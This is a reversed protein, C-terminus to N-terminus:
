SYGCWRPRFREIPRKRIYEKVKQLNNLWKEDNQIFYEKYEDIFKEWELRIHTEKM